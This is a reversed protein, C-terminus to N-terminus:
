FFEFFFIKCILKPPIETMSVSLVVCTLNKGLWHDDDEITKSEYCYVARATSNLGDTTVDTFANLSTSMLQVNQNNSHIDNITTSVIPNPGLEDKLMLLTGTWGVAVCGAARSHGAGADGWTFCVMASTTTLSTTRLDYAGIDSSGSISCQKM